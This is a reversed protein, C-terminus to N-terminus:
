SRDRGDIVLLRGHLLPADGPWSLLPEEVQWSMETAGLEDVCRSALNRFAMRGPDSLVTKGIGSLRARAILDYLPEVMNSRFCIDAGIM